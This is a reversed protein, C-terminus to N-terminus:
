PAAPPEYLHGRLPLLAGNPSYVEPHNVGPKGLLYDGARLTHEGIVIEGALVLCEEDEDHPHAPTVTGPEVRWLSTVSGTKPDTHLHKVTIGPMLPFWEGDGARVIFLEDAPANIRAMLRAQLASKREDTLPQPDLSESLLQVDHESLFRDHRNM